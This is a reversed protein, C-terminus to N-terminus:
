NSSISIKLIGKPNHLIDNGFWKRWYKIKQQIYNYRYDNQDTLPLLYADIKFIKRSDNKPDNSTLYRKILTIKSEFIRINIFNVLDIDKPDIKMTTFSGDIWQHWEDSIINKLGEIYKKYQAVLHSRTSSNQFNDGFYQTFYEFTIEIIEYPYLNGNDDFRFDM